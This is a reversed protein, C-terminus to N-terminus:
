PIRKAPALDINKKGPTNNAKLVLEWVLYDLSTRLNQLCDGVILGIKGPIPIKPKVIFTPQNQSSSTDPVFDSQNADLYRQVESKILDLYSKAHGIKQRVSDLSAM